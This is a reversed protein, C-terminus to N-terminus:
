IMSISCGVYVSLIYKYICISYYNNWIFHLINQKGSQFTHLMFVCNSQIVANHQPRLCCWKVGSSKISIVTPTKNGQLPRMLVKTTHWWSNGVSLQACLPTLKRRPESEDKDWLLDPGGQLLKADAGRLLKAIVFGLKGKGTHIVLTTWERTYKELVTDWGM